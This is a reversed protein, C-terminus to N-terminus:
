PHSRNFGKLETKIERIDARLESLNEIALELRALRKDLAMVREDDLAEHRTFSKSGQSEVTALRDENASVRQYLGGGFFIMTGVTIAMGVLNIITPARSSKENM